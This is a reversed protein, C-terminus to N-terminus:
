SSFFVGSADSWVVKGPSGSNVYLKFNTTDQLYQGNPAGRYDGAVGATTNASTLAQTLGTCTGNDVSINLTADNAPATKATLIVATTTGSVVFWKAIEADAALAARIKGAVISATDANVVPVAFTKPSGVMGAATVVVTANGTLTVTGAVTATEVQSTGSTPAGAKTLVIQNPKM